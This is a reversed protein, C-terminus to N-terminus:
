RLVGRVGRVGVRGAAAMSLGHSAESRESMGPMMSSSDGRCERGVEAAGYDVSLSAGLRVSSSDIARSSRSSNSTRPTVSAGYLTGTPM